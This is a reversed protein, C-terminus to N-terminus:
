VLSYLFHILKIFRTCFNDLSLINIIQNFVLFCSFIKVLYICKIHFCNFLISRYKEFMVNLSVLDLPICISHIELDMQYYHNYFSFPIQKSLAIVFAEFRFHNSFLLIRLHFVWIWNITSKEFSFFHFSFNLILSSNWFQYYYNSNFIM